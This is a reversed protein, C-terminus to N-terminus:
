SSTLALWLVLGSINFQKLTFVNAIIKIVKINVGNAFILKKFNFHMFIARNATILLYFCFIRYIFLVVVNELEM